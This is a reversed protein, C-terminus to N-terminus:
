VAAGSQDIGTASVVFNGSVHAVAITLFGGSVGYTRAQGGAISNSSVVVATQAVTQGVGTVLVLDTFGVGADDGWTGQILYLGSVQYPRNAYDAVSVLNATAGVAVSVDITQVRRTTDTKQLAYNTTPWLTAATVVSSAFVDTPAINQDLICLRTSTGAANSVNVKYTTGSTYVGALDTFARVTLTKVNDDVAIYAAVNGAGQNFTVVQSVLSLEVTPCNTFVVLGSIASTVVTGEIQVRADVISCDSMTFCSGSAGTLATSVGSYRCNAIGRIFAGKATLNGGGDVTITDFSV